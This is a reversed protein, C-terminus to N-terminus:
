AVDSRRAAVLAKTKAHDVDHDHLIRAAVGNGERLLGLLVHETGVYDAGLDPAEYTVALELVRSARPNLPLQARVESPSSWPVLARVRDEVAAVTVGLECLVRAALGDPEDFLGLLLHETGRYSHGFRAARTSAHDLVRKARETLREMGALGPAELFRQRAAQRTVGLSGGIDTWSHGAQRAKDVFHGLLADGIQALEATMRASVAVQRLVENSGAEEGVCGILSELTIPAPM